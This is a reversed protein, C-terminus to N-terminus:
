IKHQWDSASRSCGLLSTASPTRGIGADGLRQTCGFMLESLSAAQAFKEM